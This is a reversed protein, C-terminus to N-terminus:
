LQESHGLDNSRASDLVGYLHEYLLFAMWNSWIYRGPRKEVVIDFVSM